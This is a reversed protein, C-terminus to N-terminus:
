LGVLGLCAWTNSLRWDRNHNVALFFGKMVKLICVYDPSDMRSSVLM